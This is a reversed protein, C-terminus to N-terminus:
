IIHMEAQIAKSVLATYTDARRRSPGDFEKASARARDQLCKHKEQLADWTGQTVDDDTYFNSAEAVTFGLSTTSHWVHGQM